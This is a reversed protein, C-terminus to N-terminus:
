RRLEIETLLFFKIARWISKGYKFHSIWDDLDYNYLGCGCKFELKM